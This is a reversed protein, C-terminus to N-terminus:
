ENHFTNILYRLISVNFHSCKLLLPKTWTEIMDACKRPPSSRSSINLNNDSSQLNQLKKLGTTFGCSYTLRQSRVLACNVYHLFSFRKPDALLTDWVRLTDPMSFERALLTMYWQFSYLDPTLGVFNQVTYMVSNLMTRLRLLSIKFLARRVLHQWLAADHQRLLKALRAMQLDAGSLPNEPTRAYLVQLSAMVTAFLHYADAEVESAWIIAPNSSCVYIIPALIENMGQVYGIDPNLKAFVFLIYLM